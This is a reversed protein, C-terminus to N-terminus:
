ICYKGCCVETINGLHKALGEIGDTGHKEIVMCKASPRKVNPNTNLQLETFKFVAWNDNHSASSVRRVVDKMYGDTLDLEWNALKAM